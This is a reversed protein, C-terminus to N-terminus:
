HGLYLVTVSFRVQFPDTRMDYLEYHLVAEFFWDKLTTVQLACRVEMIVNWLLVLATVCSLVFAICGRVEAYVM